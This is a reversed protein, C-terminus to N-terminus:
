LLDKDNKCINLKKCFNIIEERKKKDKIKYILDMRKKCTTIISQEYRWKDINKHHGSILIDPVKKNYYSYPKTYQPYKLLGDYLSDTKYSMDSIVGDINRSLSDILVMAPIEGGTLIYDGISIEMDVYDLVRNDIGEYHGCLILLEKEKSLENVLEQDLVKGQPSMYIVKTIDTKNKKIAMYLPEVTMLMGAGGGYPTDDVRNRKKKSYKRIDITDISILNDSIARKIISTDKFENFFNPFLTLIKFKM